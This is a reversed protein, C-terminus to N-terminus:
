YNLKGLRSNMRILPNPASSSVRQFSSGVGYVGLGLGGLRPLRLKTPNVKQSIPLHLSQGVSHYHNGTQLRCAMVKLDFIDLGTGILNLM